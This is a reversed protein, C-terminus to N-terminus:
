DEKANAGEDEDESREDDVKKTVIGRNYILNDIYAQAPGSEVSRVLIGIMLYYWFLNLLQLLVLPLFVQYRMWYVLYTGDVAKWVKSSESCSMLMQM